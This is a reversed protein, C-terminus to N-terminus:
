ADNQPTKEHNIYQEQPLVYADEDIDKYVDSNLYHEKFYSLFVNIIATVPLALLIGMFGFLQGGALVSFLVAVPHLGTREGVFKPTLVTSEITQAVSFVVIVGIVHMWDQFQLLAMIGAMVMGVILGLYPVFSVLGSIMGIVIALDLGMFSLGLSYLIGLGLMVLLQGRMFGGLVYDCRRMLEHTISRYQMPILEDIKGILLDWDRLLYFTVVPTLFLYTFFTIVSGISGSISGIFSQAVGSAQAFNESIMAQVSELSVSNLDIAFLKQITPGAKEKMWVVYEPLREGLRSVQEAVAPLLVLVIFILGVFFGMFVMIVAFTRSRGMREIRDAIPDGLYALLAGLVFPTLIPSLLYLLALFLLLLTLWFFRSALM